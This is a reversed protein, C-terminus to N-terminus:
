LTPLSLLLRYLITPLSLLLRHTYVVYCLSALSTGEHQQSCSFVTVSYVHIHSTSYRTVSGHWSCTRVANSRNWNSPPTDTMKYVRKTLLWYRLISFTLIITKVSHSKHEFERCTNIQFHWTKTVHGKCCNNWRNTERRIGGAQDGERGAKRCSHLSAITHSICLNSLTLPLSSMTAEYGLCM